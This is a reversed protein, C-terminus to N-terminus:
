QLWPAQEITPLAAVFALFSNWMVDRHHYVEAEPVTKPITGLLMAQSTGQNVAWYEWSLGDSSDQLGTVKGPVTALAVATAQTQVVTQPSVPVPIPQHHARYDRETIKDQHAM